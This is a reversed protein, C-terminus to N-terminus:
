APGRRQILCADGYSYFRYGEDIAHAYAAKMTELGAFAAVLVFLTSRPLHFNTLLLDVAKFRYGPTIFVRTEGAFPRVRGDAAAATELLRLSTSGVAVVRGGAARARNVADAAAETIEGWEAHMHHGGVEKSKIPLFTGAGVHLTLSVRRVGRADLAALLRETFHLGATPAAVAGPHAAYVTQYDDRDRADPGEPRKIYPPLPARGHREIAAALDNGALDFELGIEGAAGKEAVTASFGPAMDIRDGPRLRRAPRAFAGWARADLRRHLTLEVAPSTERGPAPRRHGSLRAPIVRTDNFVMVDGPNVLSPLDGMVRDAPAPGEIVLLRAADRPVAPRLAILEPPLEFEFDATKLSGPGHYGPGRRKLDHTTM